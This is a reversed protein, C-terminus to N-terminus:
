EAARREEYRAEAADKSGFVEVDGSSLDLSTRVGTDWAVTARDGVLEVIQGLDLDDGDGAVVWDGPAAGDDDAEDAIPDVVSGFDFGDLYESWDRGWGPHPGAILADVIREAVEDANSCLYNHPNNNAVWTRVDNRTTIKTM